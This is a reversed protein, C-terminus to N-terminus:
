QHPFIDTPYGDISVSNKEKWYEKTNEEGKRESSDVLQGREGKFEMFPVAWGCSTQVSEITVDFLQRSGALKPFLHIHEEWEKETPHYIKASGYLRLILPKEDFSCMMLTIRNEQLLHAATENGSGTLNLWMVRDEGLVRFTDMGKPSLNVRGEKAATAVFFVKQNEIFEQILPSITDYFKAM